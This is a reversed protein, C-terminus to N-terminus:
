INAVRGVSCRLDKGVFSLKTVLSAAACTPLAAATRTNTRRVAPWFDAHMRSLRGLQTTLVLKAPESGGKRLFTVGDLNSFANIITSEYPLGLLQVVHVTMTIPSCVNNHCDSIVYQFASIESSCPSRCQVCCAMHSDVGDAQQFM